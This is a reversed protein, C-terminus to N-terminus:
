MCITCGQGICLSIRVVPSVNDQPEDQCQLLCIFATGDVEVYGRSCGGHVIVIMVVVVVEVMVVVKHNM